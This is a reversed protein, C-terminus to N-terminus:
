GLTLGWHGVPHKRTAQFSLGLLDSLWLWSQLAGPILWTHDVGWKGPLAGSALDVCRGAGPIEPLRCLGWQSISQSVRCGLPGRGAVALHGPQGPLQWPVFFSPAPVSSLADRIGAAGRPSIRALRDWLARRWVQLM